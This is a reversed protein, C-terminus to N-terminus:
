SKRTLMYLLVLVAIGSLGGVAKGLADTAAAAAAAARDGMADGWTEDGPDDKRPVKAQWAKDLLWDAGVLQFSRGLLGEHMAPYEIEMNPARWFFQVFIYWPTQAQVTPIVKTPLKQRDAILRVKPGESSPEMPRKSVALVKLPRCEAFRWENPGTAVLEHKAGMGREHLLFYRVAAAAMQPLEAAAAGDRDTRLLRWVNAGQFVPIRPTGAMRELTSRAARFPGGARRLLDM